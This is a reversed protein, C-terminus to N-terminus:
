AKRTEGKVVFDHGVIPGRWNPDWEIEADAVEDGSISSTTLYGYVADAVDPVDAGNAGFLARLLVIAGSALGLSVPIVMCGFIIDAIFYEQTLKNVVTVCPICVLLVCM